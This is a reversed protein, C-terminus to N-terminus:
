SCAYRDLYKELISEVSKIEEPNLEKRWRGVSRRSLKVSLLETSYQLEWFDCLKKVEVKTNEILKELSVECWDHGNVLASQQEWKEYLGLLIKAAPVVDSPMWPQTLYSCVVDRPDRYIHVLKSNPYLRHVRQYNLITWTNKELFRSKCQVSKAEKALDSIFVSFAEELQSLNLTSAYIKHNQFAETAAHRGEYCADNITSTLKAHHKSYNPLYDPAYFGSYKRSLQLRCVQEIYKGYKVLARSVYNKSGLRKLFIDLRRYAQDICFPNGNEAITLFEVIGGPDTLLRWEPLTAVDPHQSFMKALITTGSRGTGGILMVPKNSM